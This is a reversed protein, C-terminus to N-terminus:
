QPPGRRTRSQVDLPGTLLESRHTYRSQWFLDHQVGAFECTLGGPPRLSHNASLYLQCKLKGRGAIILTTASFLVGRGSAPNKKAAPPFRYSRKRNLDQLGNLIQYKVILVRSDLIQRYTDQFRINVLIYKPM